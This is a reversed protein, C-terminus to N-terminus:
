AEESISEAVKLLEEKELSASLSLYVNGINWKLLKMDGLALYKGEVGNISINEASNMIAAEQAQGDYVTEALILSANGKQYNLIATETVQGDSVIESNNYATAYSFEYGEPLDEPVLIEFQVHEKAEELTMDGPIGYSNLDMAKVTAGEPVEFVFESDSIGTNVELDHIEMKLVQAGDSDYIEYRLPLWTEKDVWLKIEDFLQIGEENEKLSTELLYASRGDIEEVGVVSVNTENLFDNIIEVYDIQGTDPVEPMEMKLVTNTKPNYSWMFEGDSVSLTGAEDEPEIVITKAKNPKKQLVQIESEQAEGGYSSIIHMTYSYDQISAEKQQMQEAIDEASLEETCGLSLLAPLLLILLTFVNLTKRATM